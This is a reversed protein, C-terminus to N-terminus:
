FIGRCICPFLLNLRLQNTTLTKMEPRVGTPIELSQIPNPKEVIPSQNKKLITTVCLHPLCDVNAYITGFIKYDYDTIKFAALPNYKISPM